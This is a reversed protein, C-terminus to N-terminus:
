MKGIEDSAEEIIFGVKGTATSAEQILFEV